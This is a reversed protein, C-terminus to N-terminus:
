SKIVSKGSPALTKEAKGFLFGTAPCGAEAHPTHLTQESTAAPVCQRVLKCRAIPLWGPRPDISALRNAGTRM